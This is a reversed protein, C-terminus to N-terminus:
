RRRTTFYMTVLAGVWIVFVIASGILLKWQPELPQPEDLVTKPPTGPAQDERIRSPERRRSSKSM